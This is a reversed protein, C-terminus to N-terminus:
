RAGTCSCAKADDALPRPVKLAQTWLTEWYTVQLREALQRPDALQELHAQLLAPTLEEPRPIYAAGSEILVQSCYPPEDVVLPVSGVALAEWTRFCDYGRGPPSLVSQFTAMLWLFRERELNDPVVHVLNQYGDTTLVEMYHDRLRSSRRMPPLLLRRDREAWRPANHSIHTLLTAHATRRADRESLLPPVGLPLARFLHAHAENPAHLNQAYCAVLSPINHMLERQQEHTFPEDGGSLALIVVPVRLTSRIEGVCGDLYPKQVGLVLPHGSTLDFTEAICKGIVTGVGFREAKSLERYRRLPPAFRWTHTRALFAEQTVVNLRLCRDRWAADCFGVATRLRESGAVGHQPPPRHKGHTQPDIGLSRLVTRIRDSLVFDSRLRAAHWSAVAAETALWCLAPVVDPQGQGAGRQGTTQSM